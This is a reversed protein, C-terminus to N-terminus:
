VTRDGQWLAAEDFGELFAGACFKRTLSKTDPFRMKWLGFVEVREVEVGPRRAIRRRNGFEMTSPDIPM